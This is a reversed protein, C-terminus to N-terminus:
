FAPHGFLIFPRPHGINQGILWSGSLPAVTFGSETYSTFPSNQRGPLGSFDINTAWATTSILVGGALAAFGSRGKFASAVV